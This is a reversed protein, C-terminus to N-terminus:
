KPQICEEIDPGFKTWPGNVLTLITTYQDSFFSLDKVHTKHNPRMATFSADHRNLDPLPHCLGFSVALAKRREREKEEEAAKAEDRRVREINRKTRVHWSFISFTFDQFSTPSHYTM